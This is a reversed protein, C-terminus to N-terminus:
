LCHDHHSPCTEHGEGLEIQITSHDIDFHNHLEQHIEKLFDNGPHGDPTVLHVTLAVETTSMAWIHLDHVERVFPLESLYTKVALLEVKQPVADLLLDFSELLLQGSGFIMVATIILTIVPDLWVWHLFVIGIGSLVVGFSVMTDYLLHLFAGKLNLDTKSGKEFLIASFGNILIGILAVITMSKGDITVPNYFRQIAEWILGGSVLLLFISNFVTAIIPTRKLGYTRNLTAPRKALIMAGWSLFLGLVDSLNHGADALLSLSHAFFGYGVEVIVFISNLAISIFFAKNYSPFDDHSYHHNHHHHSDHKHDSHSIM